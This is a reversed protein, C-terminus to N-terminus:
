PSKKGGLGSGLLLGAAFSISSILVVGIIQERTRPLLGGPKSLQSKIRAIESKYFIINHETEALDEAFQDTPTDHKDTTAKLENLFSNLEKLEQEYRELQDELEERSVGM